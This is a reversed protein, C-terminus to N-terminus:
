AAPAPPNPTAPAAPPPGALRPDLKEIVAAYGLSQPDNALHGSVVALAEFGRHLQYSLTPDRIRLSAVRIRKV